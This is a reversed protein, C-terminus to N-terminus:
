AVNELALAMSMGGRHMRRTLSEKEPPFTAVGVKSNFTEAQEELPLM